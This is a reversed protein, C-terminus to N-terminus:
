AYYRSRKIKKNSWIWEIVFLVLVLFLIEKWINKKILGTKGGSKIESLTEELTESKVLDSEEESLLNASYERGNIKYFGVEDLIIIKDKGNEGSPKKFRVEEEFSIVSGTRLNLRKIDEFGSLHKVFRTWFIPYDPSNKFRNEEEEIGFYGVLGNEQPNLMIIPEEGSSVYVGGCEEGCDVSRVDEIKGFDLGEIFGASKLVETEGSRKEGSIKFDLLGKYNGSLADEVHVVVGKGNKLESELFDVMKESASKINHVVYVDYDKKGVREPKEVDVIIDESAGLAAGLYKSKEKTILLVNIREIEPNSIYAINDSEIVDEVNLKFESKGKKTKFKYNYTEGEELNIESTEGEYDLSVSRESCCFNKVVVESNEKGLILSTVGVNDKEGGGVDHLRLPIKAEKIIGIEKAIDGDETDILDSAVVIMKEGDIKEAVSRATSLSEAISSRSGSLKLSAITKEASKLDGDELVLSPSSGIVVVINNDGLSDLLKSKTKEFNEGVGM